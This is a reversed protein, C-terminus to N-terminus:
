CCRASGRGYRAEQQRRIFATYDLCPAGPHAQRQHELYSDYDAVGCMLYAARRLVRLSNSAEFGLRSVSASLSRRLTSSRIMGAGM